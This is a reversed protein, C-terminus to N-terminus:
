SVMKQWLCKKELKLNQVGKNELIAMWNKVKDLFGYTFKELFHFAWPKDMPIDRWATFLHVKDSVLSTMSSPVAILASALNKQSHSLESKSQIGFGQCRSLYFCSFLHSKQRPKPKSLPISQLVVVGSDHILIHCDCVYFDCVLFFYSQDLVQFIEILNLVTPARTWELKSNWTLHGLFLVM